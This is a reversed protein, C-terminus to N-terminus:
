NCKRWVDLSHNTVGIMDSRECITFHYKLYIDFVHDDMAIITNRMYQTFLDTAVYHLREVNFAAMLEDIDERRYLEFIEDPNSIVKFTDPDLSKNNFLEDMHGGQFGYQIISADQVCYAIYVLGSNKTVRVAEALARHKDNNNYLHYMPGFLLTVDFSNDPIFSLDLANGQKLSIKHEPKINTKFIDIHKELLEVATLEYGLDALALSYRGTGAGIELIKTQPELYRQVYRMTTLFEIKGYKSLLRGDENRTGYYSELPDINPKILILNEM